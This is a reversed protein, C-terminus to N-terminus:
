KRTSRARAAAAEGGCSLDSSLAPCADIAERVAAAAALRVPEAPRGPGTSSYEQQTPANNDAGAPVSPSLGPATGAGQVHCALGDHQEDIFTQTM